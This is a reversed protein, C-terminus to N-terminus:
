YNIRGLDSAIESASSVSADQAAGRGISGGGGGTSAGDVGGRGCTIGGAGLGCGVCGAGVSGGGFGDSMEDAFGNTFTRRNWPADVIVIAVDVSHRM